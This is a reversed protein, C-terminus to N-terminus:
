YLLKKLTNTNTLSKPWHRKMYRRRRTGYNSYNKFKRTTSYEIVVILNPYMITLLRLIYYRNNGVNQYSFTPLSRQNLHNIYDNSEM